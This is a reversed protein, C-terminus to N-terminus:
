SDATLSEAEQKPADEAALSTGNKTPSTRPRCRRDTMGAQGDARCRDAWKKAARACVMFMKAAALRCLRGPCWVQATNGRLVDM